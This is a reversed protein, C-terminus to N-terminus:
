ITANVAEARRMLVGDVANTTLERTGSGWVVQETSRGAWFAGLSRKLGLKTLGSVVRVGGRIQM